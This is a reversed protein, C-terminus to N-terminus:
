RMENAQVTKTLESTIIQHSRINIGGSAVIRDTQRPETQDQTIDDETRFKMM